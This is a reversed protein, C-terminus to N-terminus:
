EHQAETHQLRQPIITPHAVTSDSKFMPQHPDHCETCNNVVRPFAWGTLRKGHAGIKFDKEQQFHCSGCLQYAQDFGVRQDGVVLKEPQSSDHCSKCSMNQSHHLQIDWHAQKGDNPTVINNGAHCVRCDPLRHSRGRVWMTDCDVVPVAQYKNLVEKKQAENLNIKPGSAPINKGCGWLLLSIGFIFYDIRM